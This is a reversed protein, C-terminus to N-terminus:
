DEKWISFSFGPHSWARSFAPCSIICLFNYLRSGLDLSIFKSLLTQTLIRRIRYFQFLFNPVFFVYPLRRDCSFFFNSSLRCWGLQFLLFKMGFWSRWNKHQSLTPGLTQFFEVCKDKRGTQITNVVYYRKLSLELKSVTWSLDEELRLFFTEYLHNWLGIFGSLDCSHVYTFLQQVIKNTQFGKNKDAKNEQNFTERTNLFGRYLLYENFLTDVYDVDDTNLRRTNSM